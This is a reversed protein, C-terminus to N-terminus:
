RQDSAARAVAAYDPKGTALLPISAVRIVRRPVVMPSVRSSRAWVKLDERSAAACDTVLVIEEQRTAGPLVIAAHVHDPWLSSAAQEVAGLAVLEGGIKAFRRARGKIYLHHDRISVIDGTDHWGEPLQSIVGDTMYGLMINPGRVFLRGADTFGEFPEIRCEIGPLCQGVSGMLNDDPTNSSIVAASETVGYGEVVAANTKARLLARTSERLPEAGCVVLRLSSLDETSALRAYHGAFTDTSPLITAGHTRIRQVIDRGELPSPHLITRAGSLVPVLGGVTLGYCHFMPLANMVIDTEPFIDLHARIQGVNSLLNAHSLAVAKPDGETGSTFLIAAAQDPAPWTLNTAGPLLSEIYGSTRDAFSIQHMIDEVYLVPVSSELLEALASLHADEVLRRSTLVTRLAVAHGACLLQRGGSTYNLLAPLLGALQAAFLSILCGASTPLMIGISQGPETRSRLAHGLVLAARSISGLTFPRDDVDYVAVHDSGYLARAHLLAEPLSQRTFTIDFPLRAPHLRGDLRTRPEPPDATFPMTDPMM